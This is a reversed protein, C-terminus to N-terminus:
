DPLMNNEKMYIQRGEAWEVFGAEKAKETVHWMENFSRRQKARHFRVQFDTDLRDAHSVATTAVANLKPDRIEAIQAFELARQFAQARKLTNEETDELAEGKAFWVKMQKSAEKKTTTKDVCADFRECKSPPKKGGCTTIPPQTCVGFVKSLLQWQQWMLWIAPPILLLFFLKKLFRM